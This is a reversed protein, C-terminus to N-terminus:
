ENMWFIAWKQAKLVEKLYFHHKSETHKNKFTECRKGRQRVTRTHTHQHIRPQPPFTLGSDWFPNPPLEFGLKFSLKPFLINGLIIWRIPGSLESHSRSGPTRNQLRLFKACPTCLSVLGCHRSASEAIFLLCNERRDVPLERRLLQVTSSIQLQM